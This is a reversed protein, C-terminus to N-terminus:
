PIIEAEFPLYGALMCECKESYDAVNPFRARIYPDRKWRELLVEAFIKPCSVARNSSSPSSVTDVRPHTIKAVEAEILVAVADLWAGLDMHQRLAESNLYTGVSIEIARVNAQDLAQPQLNDM